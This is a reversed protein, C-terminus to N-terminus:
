ELLEYMYVMWDVDAFLSIYQYHKFPMFEGNKNGCKYENSLLDVSNLKMPFEDSLISFLNKNM